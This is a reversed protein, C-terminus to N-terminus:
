KSLDTNYGKFVDSWGVRARPGEGALETPSSSLQPHNKSKEVAAAFAKGGLIWFVYSCQSLDLRYCACACLRCCFAHFFPTMSYYETESLFLLYSISTLSNRLKLRDGAVGVYGLVGM